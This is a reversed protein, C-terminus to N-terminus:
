EEESEAELPDEPTPVQDTEQSAALYLLQFMEDPTPARNSHDVDGTGALVQNVLKSFQDKDQSPSGQAPTRDNHSARSSNPLSPVILSQCGLELIRGQLREAELLSYMIGISGLALAVLGVQIGTGQNRRAIRALRDHPDCTRNM